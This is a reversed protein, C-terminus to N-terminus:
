DGGKGPYPPIAFEMWGGALLDCSVIGESLQSWCGGRVLPAYLRTILVSIIPQYTGHVELCLMLSGYASGATVDECKQTSKWDAAIQPHPCVAQRLLAVLNRFCYALAAEYM